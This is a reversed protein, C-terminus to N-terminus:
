RRRTGAACNFRIMRHFDDDGRAVDDPHLHARIALGCEYAREMRVIGARDARVVVHLNEGAIGPAEINREVPFSEIRDARFALDPRNPQRRVTQLGRLL